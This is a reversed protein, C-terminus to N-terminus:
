ASSAGPSSNFRTTYKAREIARQLVAADNDRSCQRREEGGLVSRHGFRLPAVVLLNAEADEKWCAHARGRPFGSDGAAVVVPRRHPVHNGRRCWTTALTSVAWWDNVTPTNQEPVNLLEAKFKFSLINSRQFNLHKLFFIFLYGFLVIIVVHLSTVLNFYREELGLYGELLERVTQDPKGPVLILETRDGLQSFMLGYVTWAAPNAWYAWRWWVPILKRGITFGSFVNWFLFFLFSLGSAIEINPALAVTMLGLLTFYMYSLVMYLLFWFFKSATMQFGIMPYVIAVFMFVLVFMYPLEIAVEDFSEFIEINPQHITCVVTRGTDVTKRVTRMVIAAARADLGTTPEDMFIISPSAVLEVAITLRKRQEATLGTAGELGVMANKLGTLEVLDMVQNIFM